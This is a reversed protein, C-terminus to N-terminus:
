AMKEVKKDAMMAVRREVLCADKKVARRKDTSAVLAVVRLAVMSAAKM